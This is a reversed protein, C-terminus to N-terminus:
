DSRGTQEVEMRRRTEALRRQFDATKVHEDAFAQLRARVDPSMPEVRRRRDHDFLQASDTVTLM